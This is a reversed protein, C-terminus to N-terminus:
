PMGDDELIIGVKDGVEGIEEARQKDEQTNDEEGGFQSVVALDYRHYTGAHTKTSEHPRIDDTRGDYGGHGKVESGLDDGFSTDLSQCKFVLILTVLLIGGIGVIDLQLHIRTHYGEHFMEVADALCTYM